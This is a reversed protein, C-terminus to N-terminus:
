VIDCYKCYGVMKDPVTTTENTTVTFGLIKAIERPDALGSTGQINPQPAVIPPPTAASVGLKANIQSAAAAALAAAERARFLFIFFNLLSCWKSTIIEM